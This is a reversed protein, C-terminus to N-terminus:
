FRIDAVDSIGVTTAFDKAAGRMGAASRDGPPEVQSLLRSANDTFENLNSSDLLRYVEKENKVILPGRPRNCERMAIFNDACLSSDTPYRSCDMLSITEDICFSQGMSVACKRLDSELVACKSPSMKSKNLCQKWENHITDCRSREAALAAQAARTSMDVAACLSIIHFL